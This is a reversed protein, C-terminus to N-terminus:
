RQVIGDLDGATTTIHHEKAHLIAIRHDLIGVPHHHIANGHVPHDAALGRGFGDRRARQLLAEYGENRVPELPALVMVRRDPEQLIRDVMHEVTQSGVPVACRPCHQIGITADDTGRQQPVVGPGGPRRGIEDGFETSLVKSPARTEHRDGREGDRLEPPQAIVFGLVCGSHRCDCERVIPQRPPQSAVTRAALRSATGHEFFEDRVPRIGRAGPVPRRIGPTRVRCPLGHGVAVVAIQQGGRVGETAPMLHDITCALVPAQLLRQTAPSEALWRSLPGDVLSGEFHVHQWEPLLPAASESGNRLKHEYLERVAAGGVM